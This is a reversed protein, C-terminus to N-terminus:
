SRQKKILVYLAGSGGDKALASHFALIESLQRLWANIRNKLIPAEGHQGGKGHIVLVCRNQKLFQQRIFDCLTQKAQDLTLGHLDIRSQWPIKGQKLERLRKTSIHHDGFVLIDEAAVLPHYTDSLHFSSQEIVMEISTKKSAIMLSSSPPQHAISKSKKLPKVVSMMQRFLARDEDSLTFKTM